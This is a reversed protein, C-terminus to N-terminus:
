FAGVRPLDYVSRWGESGPERLYPELDEVNRFTSGDLPVKGAPYDELIEDVMLKIYEVAAAIARKAKRAEALTARGVVGEPTGFWELKNHGQGEAFHHPRRMSMVSDDYHGDKLTLQKVGTTDVAYKMDFMEPFMLLGVSTEAEDAHIFNTQFSDPRDTPVFFERVAVHWEVLSVIAPLQYRKFFLQIGLEIQDKQAHNNVLIVKRWGANWLGLLTGVVIEILVHDDLMVTGPMGVHNWPHGGYLYAPFALSVECGEKATRRRVAECLQTVQFTDQGLPSHAGHLETCGMPLLLVDNKRQRELVYHQPTTQIYSGPKGLESPSPIGYDALIKDIEEESAEWIRKKLEGPGTGAEFFINPYETSHYKATM